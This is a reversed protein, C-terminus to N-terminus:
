FRYPQSKHPGICSPADTGVMTASPSLSPQHQTIPSAVDLPLTQHSHTLQQNYSGQPSRHQPVYSSHSSLPQPSTVPPPMSSRRLVTSHVLPSVTDVVDRRCDGMDRTHEGRSISVGPVRIDPPSPLPPQPMLYRFSDQSGHPQPSGSMPPSRRRKRVSISASTSQASTSSLRERATRLESRIARLKEEYQQEMSRHQDQLAALNRAIM